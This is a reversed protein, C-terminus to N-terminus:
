NNETSGRKNLLATSRPFENKIRVAAAKNVWEKM